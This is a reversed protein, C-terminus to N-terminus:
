VYVSETYLPLLSDQQVRKNCHFFGLGLALAAHMGLTHRGTEKVFSLCTQKLRKVPPGSSM